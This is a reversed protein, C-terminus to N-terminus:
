PDTVTCPSVNFTSPIPAQTSIYRKNSLSAQIFSANVYDCDSKLSEQLKVRSHEFPWINNYRNKSGKEIGAIRVTKVSPTQQPSNNAWAVHCSLADEMRKKERREIALFKNSVKKGQDQDDSVKGLWEPYTREKYNSSKVPHTLAIQGVGGILDMNQRINGFFPNAPKDTGPMPCGGVVPAVNPGDSEIGQNSSGGAIEVYSPFRTSFDKFGGKIIYMSGQFGETGFKKITNLCIQADKLQASATDYVIIHTCRRWTDFKSRHKEEKFTEGLKQVNFSPRKLLTTPICLSLAGNIHSTAYLTSVRLDLLLLDEPKSEILNIVHQPTVLLQTDSSDPADPLTEARLIGSLGRPASPIDLPLEFRPQSQPRGAESNYITAPSVKRATESHMLSGPSLVRKPSRSLEATHPDLNATAISAKRPRSSLNIDMAQTPEKVLSPNKSSTRAHKRQNPSPPSMHFGHGMGGLNFAKGESQKKFADHDPDQDVPLLTPSAAATSRVASSPPSWNSKSHHQASENSRFPDPAQFQFYNPSPTRQAHAHPSALRPGFYSPMTSVSASPTKASVSSTSPMVSTTTGGAAIEHVTSSALPFRHHHDQIPTLHPPEPPTRTMPLIM